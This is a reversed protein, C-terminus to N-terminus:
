FYKLFAVFGYMSKDEANSRPQSINQGLSSNFGTGQPQTSKYNLLDDPAHGLSTSIYDALEDM